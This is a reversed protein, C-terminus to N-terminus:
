LKCHPDIPDRPHLPSTLLIYISEGHSGFFKQSKYRRSEVLASASAPAPGIFPMLKRKLIKVSILNQFLFFVFGSCRRSLLDLMCFSNGSSIHPHPHNSAQQEEIKRAIRKIPRRRMRRETKALPAFTHWTHSLWFEPLAAAVKPVKM